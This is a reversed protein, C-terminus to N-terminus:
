TLRLKPSNKNTLSKKNLLSIYISELKDTLMDPDFKNAFERANKGLKHQLDTSDLIKLAFDALKQVHKVNAKYGNFDNKILENLGWKNVGVVPLWFYNAELITIWQTESTSCTLFMNVKGFIDSNILDDHPIQGLLKIKDNIGLKKALRQLGTFYPGDGVLVFTIEPKKETIKKFVNLAVDLNKEKSIRWVYLIAKGSLGELYINKIVPKEIIPLPNELVTIESKKIGHQVLEKKSEMSPTL